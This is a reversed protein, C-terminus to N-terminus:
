VLRCSSQNSDPTRTTFARRLLSEISSLFISPKVGMQKFHDRWPRVRPHSQPNEYTAAHQAQDWALVLAQTISPHKEMKNDVGYAAAGVIHIGPFNKFIDSQISLKM